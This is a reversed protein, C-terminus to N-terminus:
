HPLVNVMNTADIQKQQALAIQRKDEKLTQRLMTLRKQQDILRCFGHVFVNICVLYAYLIAFM